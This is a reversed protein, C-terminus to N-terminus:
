IFLQWVTYLTREHALSLHQRCATAVLHRRRSVQCTLRLISGSCAVGEAGRWRCPGDGLEVHVIPEDPSVDDPIFAHLPVHALVLLRALYMVTAPVPRAGTEWRALSVAHVGLRYAFLEQNLHLYHRINRLEAGASDPATPQSPLTLRSAM